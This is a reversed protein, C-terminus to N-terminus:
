NTDETYIAEVLSIFVALKLTRTTAYGSRHFMNVADFYAMDGPFEYEFERQAGAVTMTSSGPPLRVMLTVDVKSDMDVADKHFDYNTHPDFGFLVHVEEIKHPAGKQVGIM